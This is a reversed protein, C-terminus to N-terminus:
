LYIIYYNPENIKTIRIVFFFWPFYLTKMENDICFYYRHTKIKSCFIVQLHEKTLNWSISAQCRTWILLFQHSYILKLLYFLVQVRSQPTKLTRQTARTQQSQGARPRERSHNAPVSFSFEVTIPQCRSALSQQSQDLWEPAVEGKCGGFPGCLHKQNSKSKQIGTRIFRHVHVTCIPTYYRDATHRFTSDM